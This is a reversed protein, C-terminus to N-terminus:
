YREKSSRRRVTREAAM